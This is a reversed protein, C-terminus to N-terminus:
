RNYYVIAGVLVWVFAQFLFGWGRAFEVGQQGRAEKNGAGEFLALTMVQFMVACVALIATLM